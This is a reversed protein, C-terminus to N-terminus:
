LVFLVTLVAGGFLALGAMGVGEAEACAETLFCMLGISTVTGAILFLLRADM